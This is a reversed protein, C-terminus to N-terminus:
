TEALLRRDVVLRDEDGRFLVKRSALARTCTHAHTVSAARRSKDWDDCM